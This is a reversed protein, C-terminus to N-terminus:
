VRCRMTKLLNAHDERPLELASRGAPAMNARFGMEIGLGRLIGLTAASYSNTPHAVTRPPKGLVRLVHQHNRVYEERQRHPPLGAMRTPHTYSHLGVVHGRADLDRLCEDDMWLLKALPEVDLGAAAIMADMIAAYREPGLVIDRLYRFRRDGDTYFPFGPLYRAAVFDDLAARVEAAHPSAQAARDFSAYFDDVTAFRTTRFYRYVELREAAGEFVSSYVFWFATLGHRELVPLAIDYQCRLADDFTLCLDDDGLSGEIARRLWERAPLFRGRGLFELMDAFEGASIAGQGRPHVADYFHHFMIGHAAM